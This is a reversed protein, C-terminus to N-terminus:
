KNLLLYVRLLESSGWAQASCGRQIHPTNGDLIEPIYGICGNEILLSSSNLLSLAKNKANDGYTILLAEIYTPFPWTWATGNHYAPKRETNEDGIYYGYYPNKPNNILKEEYFIPTYMKVSRDALSRIAGPVLLQECSSLIKKCINIDLDPILTVAFLQNCRLSDDSIAASAQTNKDAKLNDALYTYKQDKIVFYKMISDQVQKALEKWKKNNTNKYLFTLSFYWLAQIEIPYGERPTGAPYNTDMWTFHSPSFILGSEHDMIIGNETGNIYNDAISILVNILPRGKCDKKLIDINNNLLDNSVVFMWLPADSTERNANDDGNIMNPLTGREEFSAFQILIDQAESFKKSAIIGRLCILTDRGWDLFWPYGAIVTKLSKRNVIFSNISQSLKELIPKSQPEGIAEQKFNPNSNISAEMEINEGGNLSSRFYGPSFLDSYGDTKRELDINHQINYYWEPENTYRGDSLKINLKRNIDPEFSFGNSFSNIVHPWKMSPGDNAKTVHHSLRDEIDPRIIISIKKDDPLDDNNKSAYCREFLLKVANEKEHMVLSINVQIILGQGIPVKFHWLIHNNKISGFHTQCDPNLETSFGNFIIWVRCRTFMIHRDKPIDKNLNAHLFADYKSELVGWKSRVYSLASIENSCIASRDSKYHPNARFLDPILLQQSDSLYLLPSEHHIHEKSRLLTLKLTADQHYNLSELPLFIAIFSGDKLQISKEKIKTKQDLIIEAIFRERTHIVLSNGSPIMVTRNQDSIYSWQIFNNYGIFEELYQLPNTVFFDYNSNIKSTYKTALELIKKKIFMRENIQSGKFDEAMFTNIEKIWKKNDSFCKIEGPLIVHSNSSSNCLDINFEKNRLSIEFSKNLNLNVCIFLQHKKESCIRQLWIINENEETLINIVAHPYFCPHVEIITHLRRIWEILNIESGWNLSHANHVNIKEKALWEVGNSFGFTGNISTLACFGIRLKAFELSTKALRENDHTEAFHILNGFRNSISHSIPLYDEISKKDYNQFIESYAWNMGADSLLRETISPDGGLGELMFITEPYQLRVKATIYNWADFPIKYGADCRFGDIGKKCWFLFVDAMYSWLKIQNYDLKSLDEWLVGWAGPSKFCDDDNRVFWEPHHNQLHSGWGTHNIPIDIFILANRLHIEDILEQFQGLPTTSKDFVALAPDVDFLDLAAFPSGYRGMRAYTAPTPHIPLLQIIRCRLKGIIFDLQNILDRFTGSPPLVTYNANDLTDISEQHSEQIISNSKASGFLRVFATYMTNYSFTSVPEIKIVINSGEPWLINDDNKKWYAKAEFRGVDNLPVKVSYNKESVFHMPIDYWDKNIPPLGLEAHKVIEKHRITSRNLNTRLFAEGKLEESIQLKFVIYEGCFRIIHQDPKPYQDLTIM